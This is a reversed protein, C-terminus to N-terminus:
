YKDQPSRAYELSKMHSFLNKPMLNTFPIKAHLLFKCFIKKQPPPSHMGYTMDTVMEMIFLTEQNRFGSLCPFSTVALNIKLSLLLVHIKEVNYHTCDSFTCNLKLKKIVCTRVDSFKQVTLFVIQYM